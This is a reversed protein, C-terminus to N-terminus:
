GPSPEAFNGVNDYLSDFQFHFLQLPDLCLLSGNSSSVYNEDESGLTDYSARTILGVTKFNLLADMGFTDALTSDM